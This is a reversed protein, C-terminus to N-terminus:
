VAQPLAEPPPLPGGGDPPGPPPAPPMPAGPPPAGGPTPPPTVGAIADLPKTNALRYCELTWLRLCRLRSEDYGQKRALHYRQRGRALGYNANDFPEPWIQRGTRLMEELNEDIIKRASLRLNTYQEIDTIDVLAFADEPDMGLRMMDNVFALRGAPTQPLMSAPFVKLIFSDRPMDVESWDVEFIADRERTQITFRIEEGDGTKRVHENHQKVYAAIDQCADITLEALQLFWNEYARGQDIFRESQEDAYARIAEGSNLGAPKQSTAALQSIGSNEYLTRVRNDLWPYIEPSILTPAYYQPPTGTYEITQGAGFYATGIKSVKISSGAPITWYGKGNMDHANYIDRLTKNVQMQLSAAEACLGDGWFGVLPHTWYIVAFPFRPRTWPEDFLDCGDVCIVHRGDKAKKSSPLHWAERVRVRYPSSSGMLVSSDLAASFGLGKGAAQRIKEAKEPDDAAWTEIAVQVDVTKEYVLSRPDGYLADDPDVLLDFEFVREYAPRLNQLDPYVKFIGTGFILCDRYTVPAKEYLKGAYFCGDNVKELAKAKQQTDPDAGNTLFVPRPKNKTIRSVVASCINRIVNQEHPDVQTSRRARLHDDCSLGALTPAGWLRAHHLALERREAQYASLRDCSANLRRHVEGEEALWWRQDTLADPERQLLAM